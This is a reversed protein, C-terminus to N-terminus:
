SPKGPAKSPKTLAITLATTPKTIDSKTSANASPKLLKRIRTKNNEIEEIILVNSNSM